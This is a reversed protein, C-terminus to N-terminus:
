QRCARERERNSGYRVAGVGVGVLRALPMWAHMCGQYSSATTTRLLGSGCHIRSSLGSLMRCDPGHM